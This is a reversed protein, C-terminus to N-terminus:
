VQRQRLDSDGHNDVELDISLVMIRRRDWILAVTEFRTDSSRVTVARRLVTVFSPILRAISAPPRCGKM